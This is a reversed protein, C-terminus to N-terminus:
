KKTGWGFELKNLCVKESSKSHKNVILRYRGAPLTTELAVDLFLKSMNITVDQINNSFKSNENLQLQKLTFNEISNDQPSNLIIEGSDYELEFELAKQKSTTKWCIGYPKTDPIPNGDSLTDNYSSGLIAGSANAVRSVPAGQFCDEEIGLLAKNNAQLSFRDIGTTLSLLSNTGGTYLGTVAIRASEEIFGEEQTVNGIIKSLSFGPHLSWSMSPPLFEVGTKCETINPLSQFMLIRDNLEPIYESFYIANTSRYEGTTEFDDWYTPIVLSQNRRAYQLSCEFPSSNWRSLLSLNQELQRRDQFYSSPTTSVIEIDYLNRPRISINVLQYIDLRFYQINEIEILFLEGYSRSIPQYQGNVQVSHKIGAQSLDLQNFARRIFNRNNFINNPRPKRGPKLYRELEPYSNKILLRWKGEYNDKNLNFYFSTPIRVQIKEAESLDDTNFVAHQKIKAQESQISTAINSLKYFGEYYIGFSDLQLKIDSQVPQVVGLEVLPSSQSFTTLSFLLLFLLYNFKVNM